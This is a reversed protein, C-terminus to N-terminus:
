RKQKELLLELYSKLIPTAKIGLKVLCLKLKETASELSESPTKLEIEIFDGLNEVHDLNIEYERLRYTERTKKVEAVKYFGLKELISILKESNKKGVRINIEERAKIEKSIKPGKYTFISKEKEFRLRLAEDTKKFDRCPHQFYIDVERKICLKKAGLIKLRNRIKDLDEVKVKVEYEFM